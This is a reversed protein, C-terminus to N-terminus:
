GLYDTWQPRNTGVSSYSAWLYLVATGLNLIVFYFTLVFELLEITHPHGNTRMPSITSSAYKLAVGVWAIILLTSCKGSPDLKKLWSGGLYYLVPLTTLLLWMLIPVKADQRNSAVCFLTGLAFVTAVLGFLTTVIGIWQPMTYNLQPFIDRLSSATFWMTFATALASSVYPLSTSDYATTARPTNGVLPRPTRSPINVFCEVLIFSLLYMSAVVQTGLLGSSAYLKIYQPCTVLFLILRVISNNQLNRFSGERAEDNVDDQFRFRIFRTLALKPNKAQIVFELYKTLIFGSDIVCIIPSSRLFSHPISTTKAGVVEGAPQFM